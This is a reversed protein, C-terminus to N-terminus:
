TPVTRVRGSLLDAALGARTSRLKPLTSALAEIRRTSEILPLVASRQDDLSAEGISLELLDPKLMRPVTTGHSIAAWSGKTKLYRLHWYLFDPLLRSRDPGLAVVRRTLLYTQDGPLQAVEGVPAETTVLTDGPLPIGRTWVQYVPEGVWKTTSKVIGGGVNEASIVAIGSEIYPPTRGRNDVVQALLDCVPRQRWSATTSGFREMLGLRVVTLKAIVRETAQITEDITDLIEAIRRQEELPPLAVDLQELKAKNLTAGKIAADTVGGAAISPLAHYLWGDDAKGDLGEVSVIAENTLLDRGARAVRGVTLKFSMIVSGATVVRGALPLGSETVTEATRVVPDTRM